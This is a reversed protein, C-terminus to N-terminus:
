PAGRRGTEIARDRLRLRAKGRADQDPQTVADITVEGGIERRRARAVDDRNGAPVDRDHRRRKGGEGAAEPPSAPRNESGHRDEGVHGEDPWGRRHDAGSHHGAYGQERM